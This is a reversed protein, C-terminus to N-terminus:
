HSSYGASSMALHSVPCMKLFYSHFECRLDLHRPKNSGTKAVRYRLIQSLWPSNALSLQTPGGEPNGVIQFSVVIALLMVLCSWSFSFVDSIIIRASIEGRVPM